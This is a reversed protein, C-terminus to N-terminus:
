IKLRIGTRLYLSNQNTLQLVDKRNTDKLKITSDFIYGASAYWELHNIITYDYKLGTLLITVKVKDIVENSVIINRQLESNFGEFSTFVKLANKENFTYELNMKPIGLDYSWHEDIIRHYKLVPLPFRVGRLASYVVGFLLSYGKEKRKDKYFLLGGSLKVDKFVQLDKVSNSTLGPKINAIVRWDNKWKFTYGLNLQFSQFDKLNETDFNLNDIPVIDIVNYDVGVFVYCDKSTEFPINFMGRLRSYNFESAGRKPISILEIRALDLQAFCILSTLTFFVSVKGKLNKM